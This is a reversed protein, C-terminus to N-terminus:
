RRELGLRGNDKGVARGVSVFVVLLFCVLCFRRDQVRLIIQMGFLFQSLSHKLMIPRDNEAGGGCLGNCENSLQASKEEAWESPQLHQVIITYTKIGPYKPRQVSTYIKFRSPNRFTSFFNSFTVLTLAKRAKHATRLRHAGSELVPRM